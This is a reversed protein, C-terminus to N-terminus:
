QIQEGIESFKTMLKVSNTKCFNSKQVGLSYSNPSLVPVDLLLFAACGRKLIRPRKM